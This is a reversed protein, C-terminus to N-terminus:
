YSAHAAVPVTHQAFFNRARLGHYVRGAIDAATPGKVVRSRGRLLV